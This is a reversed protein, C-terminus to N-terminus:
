ITDAECSNDAMSLLHPETPEGVEQPIPHGAPPTKSSHQQTDRATLSEKCVQTVEVSLRNLGTEHQEAPGTEQQRIQSLCTM